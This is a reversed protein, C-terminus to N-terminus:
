GLRHGEYETSQRREASPHRPLTRASGLLCPESRRELFDEILDSPGTLYGQEHDRESEDRVMQFDQVVHVDLRPCERRLSTKLEFARVRRVCVRSEDIRHGGRHPGGATRGRLRPRAFRWRRHKLARSWTAPDPSRPPSLWPSPVRAASSDDRSGSRRLRRWRSSSGRRPAGRGRSVQGPPSPPLAARATTETRSM